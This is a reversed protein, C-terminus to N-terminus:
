QVQRFPWPRIIYYRSSYCHDYNGTVLSISWPMAQDLYILKQTGRSISTVYSLVSLWFRWGSLMPLGATRVPGENELPPSSGDQVPATSSPITAMDKKDCISIYPLRLFQLLPLITSPY